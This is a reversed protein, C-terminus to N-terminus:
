VLKGDEHIQCREVMADDESEGDGVHEIGEGLDTEDSSGSRKRKQLSQVPRNHFCFDKFRMWQESLEGISKFPQDLEAYFDLRDEWYTGAWTSTVSGVYGSDIARLRAKLEDGELPRVPFTERGRLANKYWQCRRDKGFVQECASCIEHDGLAACCKCCSIGRERREKAVGRWYAIEATFLKYVLFLQEPIYQCYHGKDWWESIDREHLRSGCANPDRSSGQTLPDADQEKLWKCLSFHRTGHIYVGYPENINKSLSRSSWDGRITHYVDRTEFAKRVLPSLTQVGPARGNDETLYLCFTAALDESGPGGRTATLLVCGDSSTQLTHHGSPLVSKVDSQQTLTHQLELRKSLRLFPEQPELTGKKYSTYIFNVVGRVVGYDQRIRCKSILRDKRINPKDVGQSIRVARRAIATLLVEQPTGARLRKIKTLVSNTDCRVLIPPSRQAVRKRNKLGAAAIIAPWANHAVAIAFLERVQHWGNDLYVRSSIATYLNHQMHQLAGALRCIGTWEEQIPESEKLERLILRCLQQIINDGTILVYCFRSEIFTAHRVAGISSDLALFSERAEIDRGFNDGESDGQGIYDFLDVRGYSYIDLDTGIVRLERIIDERYMDRAWDFIYDVLLLQLAGELSTNGRWVDIVHYDINGVAYPREVGERVFATYVRWDDGRNSFFWVFPRSEWRSQLGAAAYLWDSGSIASKAELVLFPFLQRDGSQQIPQEPLPLGLVEQIQTRDPNGEHENRQKVIDNLLNEINRTAALSKREARWPEYDGQEPSNAYTDYKRNGLERVQRLTRKHQDPWESPSTEGALVIRYKKCLDERLRVEEPTLTPM